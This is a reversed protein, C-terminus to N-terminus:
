EKTLPTTSNKSQVDDLSSKEEEQDPLSAELNAMNSHAGAEAESRAMLVRHVDTAFMHYCTFVGIALVALVVLVQIAMFVGNSSIIQM